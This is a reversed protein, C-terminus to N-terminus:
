EERLDRSLIQHFAEKPSLGEYLIKYVSISNPMDVKYKQVLEYVSKATTVGEAVYKMSNLIETINEGKGLRLGVQRNRSLNGTCTLILDGIGSLGSFTKAEAGMAVGLETLEALCRTILGARTNQGFGMGDAIAVGIAMVNKLAGGVEAGVVDSTRYLRFWKVSLIEQVEKVISEDKGCVVAGTPQKECIEKAFTPGSITVYKKEIDDGLVEKFIESPLKLSKIEVGKALNILIHSEKLHDKCAELFVRLAQCPIAFVIYDGFCIAENLDKTVKLGKLDVGPIFDDNRDTKKIKDVIVEDRGWLMVELDHNQLALYAIATGFSGSGLVTIKKNKNKM